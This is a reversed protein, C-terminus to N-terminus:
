PTARLYQYVTERSIGLERALTTKRSVSVSWFWPLHVKVVARRLRLGARVRHLPTGPRGPM